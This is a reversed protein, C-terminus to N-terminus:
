GQIASIFGVQNHHTNDKNCLVPNSKSINQQSNKCRHENKVWQREGEYQIQKTETDNYHQNQLM